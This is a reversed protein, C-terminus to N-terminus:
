WWSGDFWARLLASAAAFRPPGLKGERLRNAAQYMRVRPTEGSREIWRTWALQTEQDLGRWTDAVEMEELVGAFEPDLSM